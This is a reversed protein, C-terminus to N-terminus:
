FLQVGWVEYFLKRPNNASAVICPRLDRSAEQLNTSCSFLVGMGLENNHGRADELVRLVSSYIHSPKHSSNCCEVGNMLGDNGALALFPLIARCMHLLTVSTPVVWWTDHAPLLKGSVRALLYAKMEVPSQHYTYTRDGPIWCAGFMQDRSTGQKLVSTTPPNPSPFSSFTISHCSPKNSFSWANTFFM